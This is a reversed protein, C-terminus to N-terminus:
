PQAITSKLRMTWETAHTNTGLIDHLQGEWARQEQLLRCLADSRSRRWRWRMLTSPVSAAYSATCCFAAVTPIADLRNVRHRRDAPECRQIRSCLHRHRRHAAEIQRRQCQQNNSRQWRTAHFTIGRPLTRATRASHSRWDIQMASPRLAYEVFRPLPSSETVASDASSSTLRLIDSAGAHTSAGLVDRPSAVAASARPPSSRRLSHLLTLGDRRRSPQRSLAIRPPM